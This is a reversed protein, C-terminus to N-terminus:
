SATLHLLSSRIHLVQNAQSGTVVKKYSEERPPAGAACLEKAQYFIEVANSCPHLSPSLAPNMAPAYSVPVAAISAV